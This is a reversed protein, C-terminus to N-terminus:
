ASLGAAAGDERRSQFYEKVFRQLEPKDSNWRWAGSDDIAIDAFPDFGLELVRRHRAAYARDALAGHWLHSITGEIYGLSGQTSRTFARAWQSYHELCDQDWHLARAVLDYRDVVAGIIARDGGGCICADYFGHRELLDRRIVWALGPTGGNATEGTINGLDEVSGRGTSWHYAISETRDAKPPPVPMDRAYLQSAEPSLDCRDQFLQVLDAGDLAKLAREGWDPMEFLIDCDLWAVAECDAPLATLALNLLREKQWLVDGGTVQVLVDADGNHLEMQGDQALEVTVLPINLHRRFTQYNELRRHYKAPNFYSTVAWLKSM